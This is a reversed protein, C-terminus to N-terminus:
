MSSIINGLSQVYEDSEMPIVLGKEFALIERIAEESTDAIFVLIRGTLEPM